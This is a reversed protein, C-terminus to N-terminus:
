LAATRKYGCWFVSGLLLGGGFLMRVTPIESFVVWAMAITYVPELAIIIAATRANLVSLTAVFSTYALGSCLTGLCVIWFWDHASVDGIQDLTLPAILVLIILFQWWSGSTGSVHVSLLRNFLTMIAYVLGSIIGWILGQTAADNFTFEPTILLLGFTVLLMSVWEYWALKEKFFVAESLCVFVPFAAFGLTAVAVGGVQISIFFTLWHIGLLIGAGSAYMVNRRGIGRWPREGIKWCFLTVVLLACAVRGLVVIEAHTHIFKSFIASAGFLITILHMRLIASRQSVM